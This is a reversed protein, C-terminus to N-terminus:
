VPEKATRWMERIRSVHVQHHVGNSRLVRTYFHGLSHYTYVVEGWLVNDRREWSVERGPFLAMKLAANCQQKAAEARALAKRAKLDL